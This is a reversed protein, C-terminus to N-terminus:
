GLSDGSHAPTLPTHTHTHTHTMLLVDDWMSSLVEYMICVMRWRQHIERLILKNITNNFNNYSRFLLLDIFLDLMGVTESMLLM